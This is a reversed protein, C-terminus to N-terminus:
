QVQERDHALLSAKACCARTCEAAQLSRPVFSRYGRVKSWNAISPVREIRRVTYVKTRFSQAEFAKVAPCSKGQYMSSQMTSAATTPLSQCTM